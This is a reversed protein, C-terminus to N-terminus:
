NGVVKNRYVLDGRSAFGMKEWFDNGRRNSEFVVLAAKIIGEDEFATMVADVLVRGIGQRRCDEAVALHCIYGRRGDHGGLVAGVICGGQEAVFCTGPNRKLYKEIGDRSDDVDNLGMGPTAQWLAYVDDYDSITM